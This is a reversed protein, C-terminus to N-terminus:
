TMPPSVVADCAARKAVDAVHGDGEILPGVVTDLAAVYVLRTVARDAEGAAVTQSQRRGAVENLVAVDVVEAAPDARITRGYQDAAYAVPDRVAVEVVRRVGGYQEAAVLVDNLEVVDVIDAAFGAVRTREVHAAIPGHASVHHPEVVEVVEASEVVLEALVIEAVGHRDVQVIPGAASADVAVQEVLGVAGNHDARM